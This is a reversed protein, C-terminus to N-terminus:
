RSVKEYFDIIMAAGGRNGPADLMKRQIRSVNALIGEDKMVSLVTTKLSESNITSYDLKKGLGLEEIRRANTPQESMFPIVVMPVGHVLAESVSNMGGHTVFIDAQKLVSLQPVENYIRYNKPINKLKHIPFGKGVSMIVDVQENRFAEICKEFFSVAGKVITGLSIYIVPLNTKKFDINQEKRDYVSAGLFKYQEEPFDEAYPQYEKLTYVLNLAPPNQVIEDLWCDTKMPIGKAIDKTWLKCIWKHKFIGLAGGACIYEKMLKGNTAPAPFIRVAPKGHKEVLHKGLFFFQEYVIMDYDKAVRDAAAYANKIQESLKRHNEYGAFDAGSEYVHEKWDFPMLYTVACGQKILERVLGITPMFHGHYPLNIFLIKM